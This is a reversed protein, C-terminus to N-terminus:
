KNCGSNSTVSEHGYISITHSSCFKKIRNYSHIIWDSQLKFKLKFTPLEKFIPIM